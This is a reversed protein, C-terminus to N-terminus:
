PHIPEIRLTLVPGAVLDTTVRLMQEGGGMLHVSADFVGSGVRAVDVTHADRETCGAVWAMAAHMVLRGLIVGADHSEGEHADPVAASEVAPGLAAGDKGVIQLRPRKSTVYGGKREGM